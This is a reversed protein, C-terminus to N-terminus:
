RSLSINRFARIGDGVGQSDSKSSTADGFKWVPDSQDQSAIKSDHDSQRYVNQRASASSLKVAPILGAAVAIMGATVLLLAVRFFRSFRIRPNVRKYNM